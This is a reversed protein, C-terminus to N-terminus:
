LPKPGAIPANVGAQHIVPASPDITPSIDKQVLDRVSVPNTQAQSLGGANDLFEGGSILNNICSANNVLFARGGCNTVLLKEFTNGTCETGPCLKMGLATQAMFVGHHRSKRITLGEFTNSRSQRMFIGLDNGTLVAGDIINHDFDLDLSIGAGLNDHLNLNSFHSQETLYCALGDFQNDYSTFDSVTLRRTRATSVLGGSRCRYCSVRQVAVDDVNWVDIGNNYLGGEPLSRWVETKQNKRNGDIALDSLTLGTVPGEPKEMPSGLIVVPCDAHDALYLITKAGAGRLAQHDRQLIIPQHVVYVGAELAVEGGNPLSDLAKQIGEGGAKPGVHIVTAFAAPSVLVM